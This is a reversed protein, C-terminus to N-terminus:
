DAGQQHPQIQRERQRRMEEPSLRRPITINKDQLTDKKEEPVPIISDKLERDAFPLGLTDGSLSDTRTVAITDMSHYRTLAINSILLKRQEDLTDPYYYVFGRIESLQYLSDSHLYIRYNGSQYIDRTEALLSDNKYLLQMGMVANLVTDPQPHLFLFDMEWLLADREKYNSDPTISFLLKNTALSGTLLHLKKDTWVGVTDGPASTQSKKDRMAILQNIQDRRKKIRESVNQHVESFIKPNRTYWVLSSDFQAQDTHHKSFVYEMYFTQKYREDHNLEDAMSRAIYYDYLVEEMRQKSLVEKPIRTCGALTLCFLFLLIQRPSNLCSKM